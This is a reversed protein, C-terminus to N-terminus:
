TVFNLLIFGEARPNFTLGDPGAVFLGLVDLLDFAEVLRSEVGGQFILVGEEYVKPNELWLICVAERCVSLEHPILEVSDFGRQAWNDEIWRDINWSDWSTALLGSM